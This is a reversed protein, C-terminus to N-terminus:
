KIREFDDGIPNNTQFTWEEEIADKEIVTKYMEVYQMSTQGNTIRESYLRFIKEADAKHFFVRVMTDSSGIPEVVWISTSNQYKADKSAM